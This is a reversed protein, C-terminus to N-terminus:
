LNSLQVADCGYLKKYDEWNIYVKRGFRNDKESIYGANELVTLIKDAKEKRIRMYDRLIKNFVYNERSIIQLAYILEGIFVDGIDIESFRKFRITEESTDFVESEPECPIVEANNVFDPNEDSFCKSHSTEESTDPFEPEPEISIEEVDNVFDLNEDSFCKSYNTEESTDPFKSESEYPIKKADNLSDSDEDAGSDDDEDGTGDFDDIESKEPLKADKGDQYGAKYAVYATGVLTGVGLITKFIKKANM